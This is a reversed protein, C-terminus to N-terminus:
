AGLINKYDLVLQDAQHPYSLFAQLKADPNFLMIEASHNITYHGNKGDGTQMKASVIHLEKKLNAIQSEDGRLGIFHPNFANVYANIKEVTDRQPDVSILVVQPLEKNPLEKSLKGYMKNLESMTTPCVMGCNTFGFFLMTWKGRMKAKDFSQGHNDTLQFNQIATPKSVYVGDIKIERDNDVERKMYFYALGFLVIFLLSLVFLKKQNSLHTM